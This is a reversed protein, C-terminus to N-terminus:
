KPTCPNLTGANVDAAPLHRILVARSMRFRRSGHQKGVVSELAKIETAMIANADIRKPGAYFATKTVRIAKVSGAKAEAQGLSDRATPESHGSSAM